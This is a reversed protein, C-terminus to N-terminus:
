FWILNDIKMHSDEELQCRINDWFTQPILHTLEWPTQNGGPFFTDGARRGPIEHSHSPIENMTLTHFASGGVDNRTYAYNNVGETYNGAGLIVRGSALTHPSWGIPCTDLDFAIVAGTPISYNPNINISSYFIDDYYSNGDALSIENSRVFMNDNDCNEIEISAGTCNAVSVGNSNFAGIGREGLSFLVYTGSDPPTVVSNAPSGKDVISITGFEEDYTGSSTLYRSVAYQYFRGWGDINNGDIISLSRTPITGILIEDPTLNPDANTDRGGQTIIVGNAGSCDERLYSPSNPVAQPPAPCPLRGNKQVFDNLKSDLYTIRQKTQDYKNKELYISYIRFLGLIIMSLIVLVITM